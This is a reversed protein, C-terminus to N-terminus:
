WTALSWTILGISGAAIAVIVFGILGRLASPARRDPAAHMLSPFPLVNSKLDQRKTPTTRADSM